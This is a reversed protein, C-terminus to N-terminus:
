KCYSSMIYVFEYLFITAILGSVGGKKCCSSGGCFVCRCGINCSASIRPSGYELFDGNGLMPWRATQGLSVLKWTSPWGLICCFCM